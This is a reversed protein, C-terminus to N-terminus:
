FFSEPVFVLSSCGTVLLSDKKRMGCKANSNIEGRAFTITGKQWQLIKERGQGKVQLLCLFSCDHFDSLDNSEKFLFLDEARDAQFDLSIFDM